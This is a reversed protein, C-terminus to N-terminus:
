NKSFFSSLTPTLNYSFDFGYCSGDITVNFTTVSAGEDDVGHGRSYFIMPVFGVSVDIQDGNKLTKIAPVTNNIKIVGDKYHVATINYFKFLVPELQILSLNEMKVKGQNQLLKGEKL